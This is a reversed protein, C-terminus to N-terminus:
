DNFYLNVGFSLLLEIGGSNTRTAKDVLGLYAAGLDAQASFRGGIFYEIGGFAGIGVGDGENVESKFYPIADMELCLYPQLPRDPGALYRYIRAGLVTASIKKETGAAPDEMTQNLKYSRFELATNDTSFFRLGAGGYRLDLNLRNKRIVVPYPKFTKTVPQPYLEKLPIVPPPLVAKSPRGALARVASEALQFLQGDKCGPCVESVSKDVLGTEIDIVNLAMNYTEGVRSISGAVMKRAGLLQGMEVVCNQDTCGSAQFKQEDLIEGIRGRELWRYGPMINFVKVRIHQTIAALDDDSLTKRTLNALDWVAATPEAERPLSSAAFLPPLVMVIFFLSFAATLELDLIRM